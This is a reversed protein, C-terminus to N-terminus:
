NPTYHSVVKKRKGSSLAPIEDVYEVTVLADEGFDKKVDQILENEFDFQGELNLKIRYSKQDEQIFQYQKILTYYNYFKTYIIFSSILTGSTDYVMDMKRGELGKFTPAGSIEDKGFRAIDGTDYRLLPMCYNFLDTVVIRGAQGPKAPIDKEMDLIEVHYSGWNIKFDTKNMDPLQQAIIGIEENSYRSVVPVQFYKQMTDKVYDTLYESIAVVSKINLNLPAAGKKDLYKCINEFASVFGILHRPSNDKKLEALFNEIEDDSFRTIDVYKLNQLLAKTPSNMNIGRWVELDYLREGLTYNAQQLFYITDATNRKKKNENQFLFFPIGTSGSTAVKFKPLDIYPQSKFEEFNNQVTTKKIVPFDELNTLHSFEKYFPTTSTAHDILNSLYSTRLLKAEASDFKENILTIEDYHNKIKKGKISDIAWFGYSRLKSLAM